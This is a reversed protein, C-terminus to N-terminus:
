NVIRLQTNERVRKREEIESSQSGEIRNHSPNKLKDARDIRRGEEPERDEKQANMCENDFHKPCLCSVPCFLMSPVPRKAKGRYLDEFCRLKLEWLFYVSFM